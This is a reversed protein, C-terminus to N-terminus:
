TRICREARTPFYQFDVMKDNKLFNELEKSTENDLRVFSPISDYRSWHQFTLEYAAIYSASTRTQMTEVHINGNYCSVLHYSYKPVDFDATYFFLKVYITPDDDITANADDSINQIDDEYSTDEKETTVIIIPAVIPVSTTSDIGQRRRDM